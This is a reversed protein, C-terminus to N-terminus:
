KTEGKNENIIKKHAKVHNFINQKQTDTLESYESLVYRTHEEVHIEHTDVEEVLLEKQRLLGNEYQAKETQLSSLGKQYDLDKYGLSILIKEKIEERIVGKEDNLLGTELLRFTIDKKQLPTLLLENEKEIYIEESNVKDKDIHCIRIKDFGDKYRIARVGVLFVSYLSIIHKAIELCCNRIREAVPVLRENDQEILMQLASGSSLKANNKSSSVDSVGSITVFEDLLKEEEENFETPMSIGSMMEPPTSGQRYVLIKGPSLGDEALEEVDISGDEVNMIGMSLRNMFEHKRNKVANYARQVPILREVISTGFFNGASNQSEQKVFPYFFIGNEKNYYPLEGYYLLKDGAVTILRGKPFEQSPKEYREIVIASDNIVSKVQEVNLTSSNKISLNYVSVDNGPVDIGYKEKIISVPVAKAHIISTLDQIEETYLNDPFIEFPSVPIIEPDGEFVNKGDFVGVKNGGNENWIIKYFGTGCTESWSTVKKVTKLLGARDFANKILKEMVFANDYDKDDNSRPKVAIVPELKSFKAIRSEVLPAIHNFVERNQWYFSKDDTSMEGKKDIFCYQNGALFNMNLEWQREYSIREKQRKAFDDKVESVIEEYFRQKEKETQVTTKKDNYM